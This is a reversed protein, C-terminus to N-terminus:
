RAGLATWVESESRLVMFYFTGKRAVEGFSRIPSVISRILRALLREPRRACTKPGSRASKPPSAGRGVTPLLPHQSRPGAGPGLANREAGPCGIADRAVM